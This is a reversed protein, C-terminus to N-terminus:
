ATVAMAEVITARAAPHLNFAGIYGDAFGLRRVGLPIKDAPLKQWGGQTSRFPDGHDSKARRYLVGLTDFTPEDVGTEM